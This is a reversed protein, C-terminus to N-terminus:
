QHYDGKKAAQQRLGLVCQRFVGSNGRASLAGRRSGKWRGRGLLRLKQQKGAEKMIELRRLEKGKEEGFDRTEELLIGEAEVWERAKELSATAKREMAM